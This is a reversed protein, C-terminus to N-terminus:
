DAVIRPNIRWDAHYGQSITRFGWGTGQNDVSAQGPHFM